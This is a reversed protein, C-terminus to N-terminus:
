TFIYAGYGVVRDKPGATDGSNRLDVTEPKLGSEKAFHLLGNIAKRGCAQGEKLPQLKEIDQSTIKDLRVATDYDHYHSLDSSIVIITEPRDWLLEIVQAVESASAEGVVLPVLTFDDFITQLFPLHVELCHERVHANDQIVVQPLDLITEIAKIDLPVNGLPTVFAQASSTALGAVRAWHTPGILVVRRPQRKLKALYAYGSGAIPGSYIYGAQPGILARPAPPNPQNAQQIFQNVVQRLQNPDGPYFQGAVAPARMKLM